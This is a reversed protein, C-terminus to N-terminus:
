SLKGLVALYRERDDDSASFSESDIFEIGTVGEGPIFQVDSPLTVEYVNWILWVQRNDFYFSKQKLIKGVHVGSSM